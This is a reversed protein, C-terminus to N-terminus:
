ISRWNMNGNDVYVQYNQSSVSDIFMDDGVVPDLTPINSIRGKSDIVIRYNTGTSEDQLVLSLLVESTRQIDPYGNTFVIGYFVNLNNHFYTVTLKQGDYINGAGILTGNIGDFEVDFWEEITRSNTDQTVTIDVTNQMVWSDGVLMPENTVTFSNGIIPIDIECFPEITGSGRFSNSSMIQNLRGNVTVDDNSSNLGIHKEIRELAAFIDNFNEGYIM